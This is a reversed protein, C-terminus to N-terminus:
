QFEIFEIEEESLKYINYVIDDINQYDEIQLMKEIQQKTEFDPIPIKIPEIAQVSILLDGTGTKPSDQLMYNGLRSNLIGVLYQLNEGTAFCTSDLVTHKKEDYCFRLISGVRKWVIKQKDLDEWYSISDQTEFWKNNTRKRAGAEGTQKLRDYGFSMLHKKVAPYQEIDIKLSPFTIILYLDAFQYSYRKIDRGRLLPRIIEASKPDESILEDKKKGDIIFAENYGTLIGRYIHIDWDKLPTGVAEIKAKIQQEIPSLIVWSNSGFSCDAANQRVFVSLDKIGEKKVVCAQTQQRNKDKSFMLINTDVTASEFIKVGAFDILQLPNTNEAFFRRTNEGYGARMWKNSTIFCLYAQPKLLQYGREYFLSYLDGMSDFTQYPSPINKKNEKKPGYLKSLEGGNKQLQVYPPNGIIIDFGQTVGFMREADFFPSTANPNYPDWDSIKQATDNDYGIEKLKKAIQGRLERDKQRYKAKTESTRASFHKHRVVALEKELPAIIDMGITLQTPKDLGTLTNAAVFKTELNPLPRIGLNPKEPNPTQECVLSIFFRLKAIQVAISQIDIGFICNEILFLKRGYNLENNEFAEEINKIAFERAKEDEIKEALSLQRQKWLNNNPDLKQLVQVMKNLIGMPFAGSGCAPDLIKCNDLASILKQTNEKDFPNESNDDFLIKLNNELDNENLFDNKLYAILSEQVMYDVIERPTYFSGTQKRATTQTEPNYSALLNEFVKGLLEPDLAIEVDVPTNEEITFNYTQLIDILGRVKYTKSKTDYIENLDVSKEENFFLFDPIKLLEEKDTRNSFCDIRIENEQGINKDLNEFLGGNLFPINQILKLFREKDKFFREYRYFGQVGSQRNVFKRKEGMETNLTAFFLNQLIAKYYTSGAKDKYNLINSLKQRDFFDNDILKKQKLFWVFMLRTILRIVATENSNQPFQVNQLAWFYWNSLEKFFEKTLMEVSFADMLTKLSVGDTLLKTFREIATHYHQTEDGFVFTFRKPSTEEGKIDSILSVRWAVGDDFVALAADFVGWRPNTFTKVLNRLGVRRHVVSGSNLRFYFLGIEADPASLKGLYYATETETSVALQEPTQRLERVGFLNLLMAQWTDASFASQFITQLEEKSYM